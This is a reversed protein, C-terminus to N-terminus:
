MDVAVKLDDITQKVRLSSLEGLAELTIVLAQLNPTTPDELVKMILELNAEKAEESIDLQEMELVLDQIANKLEETM